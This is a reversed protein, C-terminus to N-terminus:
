NRYFINTDLYHFNEAVIKETQYKKNHDSFYLGIKWILLWKFFGSKSVEDYKSM